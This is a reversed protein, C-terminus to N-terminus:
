NELRTKVKEVVRQWVNKDSPKAGVPLGLYLFPIDGVGCNLRRAWGEVVVRDLGIGMLCSKHFNIKLGLLLEFCRLVGKLAVINEEKAEGLFISDDAYQLHSVEIREGGSRVPTFLGTLCARSMLRSLGKAVILYLFPSLPDGQRLGRELKFPKSPSGNVLVSTEASSICELIWKSWKNGFGLLSMMDM